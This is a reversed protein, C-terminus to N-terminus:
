GGGRRSGSGSAGGAPAAEDEANGRGAGGPAGTGRSRGGAGPGGGAGAGSRGRARAQERAARARVPDARWPERARASSGASPGASGGPARRPSRGGAANALRDYAEQIALFAPLAAEGASDPHFEKALRRYARKVEAQTAGPDLGLVRYPDMAM